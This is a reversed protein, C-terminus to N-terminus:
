PASRWARLTAGGGAAIARDLAARAEDTRGLAWLARARDTEQVPVGAAEARALHELVQVWNARLAAGDALELWRGGDAAAEVDPDLAVVLSSAGFREWRAPDLLGLTGDGSVTLITGDLPAAAVDVISAAHLPVSQLLELGRADYLDLQGDYGGVALLTGDPSWGVAQIAETRGGVHVPVGDGEADFVLADGEHCGVAIRRGDPSFAVRYGADGAPGTLVIERRDLDWVEVIPRNRARSTVALRRGDPSTALAWPNDISGQLRWREEGSAPDFAVVRGNEFVVVADGDVFAAGSAFAVEETRLARVIEGTETRVLRGAGDRDATLLLTGDASFAVDRTGIASTRVERLLSKSRWEWLRVVGDWGATAALLGDASVEVATLREASVRASPADDGAELSWLRVTGGVSTLVRGGRAPVVVVGHSASLGSVMRREGLRGGTAADLAVM